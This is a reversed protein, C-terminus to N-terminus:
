AGMLEKAKAVGTVADAAYHAGIRQAYEETVVAGGILLKAGLGDERVRQAIVSMENMTTTLLSSLCILDAGSEKAAAVVEESPVDKGLDMVEFGHNELMMAVINKGIDHVDGRVTCIVVKGLKRSATRSLLPKLVTFGKKMANASAIMQPLFYEGGSYLEGVRELGKILGSNMIEDPTHAALASEVTVAIADNDGDLVMALITEIPGSATRAAPKSGADADKGSMFAIYRSAGPDSGTLFDLAHREEASYGSIERVGSPNIIAATLGKQRALHLFVTNIHRRAPLGFSINSLGLSTKIGREAFHGIVKLTEMAAGPEASEALMLPDIFVRQPGIGRRGLEALIREGIAIRKEAERHIGGEDMCLAVTFFGYRAVLPAVTELSKGKGSISNVIGSGPYLALAAELVAPNDSDIMLPTRVGTSLIRLCERMAAPEDIGPVGVNIDLVHAGEDVQRRSEERLFAFLGTKLEEAFKKRATPNLREGIVVLGEHKRTDIATFRGTIYSFSRKGRLASGSVDKLRDKLARIHEPTTGCCGGIVKIGLDAFIMSLGAFREPSLSYFTKGDQIEPLGANAWVSLPVGIESLLGIHSKYLGVLGDPGMSCNAGVADAGAQALSALAALMGTGSITKGNEEFTMSAIVPLDTIDKVARLATKAELLDSMTEIIFLDVGGEALGRAQEAFSEYLEDVRTEGLPEALSGSPGISGAVYVGRPAATARALAAAARNIERCRGSLGYEALKLRSGGFTNTEIIDAGCSVYAGYVREIVDPRELNLMEVCGRYDPLHRFIETGMAGDLVLPDANHLRDIFNM